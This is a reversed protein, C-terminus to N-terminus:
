NWTRPNSNVHLPYFLDFHVHKNSKWTINVNARGDWIGIAELVPGIITDRNQSFLGIQDACTKQSGTRIQFILLIVVGFLTALFGGAGLYFIYGLSCNQLMVLFVMHLQWSNFRSGIQEKHLLTQCNFAEAVNFYCDIFLIYLTNESCPMRRDWFNEPKNLGTEVRPTCRHDSFAYYWNKCM